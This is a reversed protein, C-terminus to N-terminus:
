VEHVMEERKASNDTARHAPDSPVPEGCEKSVILPCLFSTAGGILPSSSEGSEAWRQWAWESWVWWM